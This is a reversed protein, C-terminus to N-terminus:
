RHAPTLVSRAALLHSRTPRGACLGGAPPALANDSMIGIICYTRRLSPQDALGSLTTGTRPTASRATLRSSKCPAVQTLTLPLQTTTPARTVTFTVCTSPRRSAAPSSAGAAMLIVSLWRRRASTASKTARQRTSPAMLWIRGVRLSRRRWLHCKNLLKVGSSGFFFGLWFCAWRGRLDWWRAGKNSWNMRTDDPRPPTRRHPQIHRGTALFVGIVVRRSGRGELCLARARTLAWSGM